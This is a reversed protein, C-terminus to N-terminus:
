ALTHKVFELLADKQNPLREHLVEDLLRELHYQISKGQIGLHLLDHGNVALDSISVCIENHIWDDISQIREAAHSENRIIDQMMLAEKLLSVSTKGLQRKLQILDNFDMQILEHLTCAERIVDNPAKLHKLRQKLVDSTTSAYLYAVSTSLSAFQDLAEFYSSPLENLEPLIQLMVERGYSFCLQPYPASFIGQLESYVREVALTDLLVCLSKMAQSTEHDLKFNLKAMFRLGRLIRLADESFRQQPDGVCRIRKAQIDDLGSVWDIIRGDYDMALANITFDRRILDEKLSSVFSVKQPHRANLSLGDNRYSTMEIWHEGVKVGITGHKEGVKSHPYEKFVKLMDQPHANTAIDVDQNEIGLLEDRIWGGVVFAEFGAQHLHNLVIHAAKPLKEIPIFTM